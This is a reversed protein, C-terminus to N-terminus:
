EGEGNKQILELTLIEDTVDTIRYRDYHKTMFTSGVPYHTTVGGGRSGIRTIMAKGDPSKGSFQHDSRLSDGEANIRTDIMTGVYIRVTPAAPYDANSLEDVFACAAVIIAGFVFASCIFTEITGPKM